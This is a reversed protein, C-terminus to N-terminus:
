GEQTSAENGDFAGDLVDMFPMTSLVLAAGKRQREDKKAAWWDKASALMGRSGGGGVVSRPSQQKSDREAYKDGARSGLGLANGGWSARRAHGRPPAGFPNGRIPAVDPAASAHAAPAPTVPLARLRMPSGTSEEEKAMIAGYVEPTPREVIITAEAANGIARELGGRELPVGGVSILRDFSQLGAAHAASGEAVTTVRNQPTLELGLGSPSHPVRISLLEAQREVRTTSRLPNSPASANRAHGGFRAPRVFTAAECAAMPALM